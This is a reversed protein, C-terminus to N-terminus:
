DVREQSIVSFAQRFHGKMWELGSDGARSKHWVMFVNFTGLDLPPRCVKFRPVAHALALCAPTPATAIADLRMLFAPLSSFHTLATLVRRQLGMARLTTDVVGERGLPSVLVHPLEVYTQLSLPPEVKMRQPDFLCSFGLEGLDEQGVPMQGIPGSVMGLDIDRQEIAHEVNYRSVQRMVLSVGPAEHTVAEALRPGLALELDDSLGLTFRRTVSAADFVSPALMMEHMGEVQEALPQAMAAARPTPEMGNKTRVFLPDDCTHRLRALAASVAAHSLSLRRAAQLVSREEWLALFVVALNLDIRRLESFSVKM